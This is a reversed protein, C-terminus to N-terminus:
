WRRRAAALGAARRGRLGPDQLGGRLLAPRQRQRVGLGRAGRRARVRGPQRRRLHGRGRGAHRRLGRDDRDEAARPGVPRARGLPHRGPGGRRRRRERPQRDVPLGAHHLRVRPRGGAGRRRRPGQVLADPQRQRGEGVALAHGARPRPQAGRVLPTWGPELNPIDAIGAPVPLLDRYRWINRPGAEITEGRSRGTPDYGVELPGFCDTCAYSPGLAVRRRVRSLGTPHRLGPRPHDRRPRNSVPATM